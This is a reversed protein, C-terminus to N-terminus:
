IVIYSGRTGKADIDKTPSAKQDINKFKFFELFLSVKASM